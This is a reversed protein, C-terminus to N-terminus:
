KTQNKLKIAIKTRYDKKIKDMENKNLAKLHKIKKKFWDEWKTTITQYKKKIKLKAEIDTIKIELDIDREEIDSLEKWRLEYTKLDRRKIYINQQSCYNCKKKFLLEYQNRYIKKRFIKLTLFGRQKKNCCKCFFQKIM